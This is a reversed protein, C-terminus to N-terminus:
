TEQPQMKVLGSDIGDPNLEADADCNYGFPDAGGGHAKM